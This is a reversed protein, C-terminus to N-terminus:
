YITKIWQLFNSKNEQLTALNQFHEDIFYSIDKTKYGLRNLIDILRNKM